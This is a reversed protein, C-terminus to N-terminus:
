AGGTPHNQDFDLASSAKLIATVTRSSESLDSIQHSQAEILEQKKDATEKWDNGRSVAAGVIADHTKKPILRGSAVM